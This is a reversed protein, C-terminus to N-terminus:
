RGLGFRRQVGPAPRQGDAAKPGCEGCDLRWCGCAVAEQERRAPWSRVDADHRAKWRDYADPDVPGAWPDTNGRYRFRQDTTLDDWAPIVAGTPVIPQTM